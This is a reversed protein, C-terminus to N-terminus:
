ESLKFVRRECWLSVALTFVGVFLAIDALNFTPWHWESWYFDLYDVVYGRALRDVTNGIAGGLILSYALAELRPIPKYLQVMLVVAVVLALGVFIYRQWGGADALFSFAAGTNGAYVWNFFPTLPIVQGFPMLAHVLAKIIQDALAVSVAISLWTGCRSRCGKDLDSM